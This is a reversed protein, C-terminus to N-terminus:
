VVGRGEGRVVQRRESQDQEDEGGKAKAEKARAEKARRMWSFDGGFRDWCEICWKGRCAFFGRRALEVGCGDCKEEDGM